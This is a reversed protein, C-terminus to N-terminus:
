QFEDTIEDKLEEIRHSPVFYNALGSIYVDEGHLMEGTLCLYYGINNRLRSLLQNEITILGIKSEPMTFKTKETAIIFPSHGTLGFGAGIVVGDWCAVKVAKTRTMEYDM